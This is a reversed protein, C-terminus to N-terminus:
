RSRPSHSHINKSLFILSFYIKPTIFNHPLHSIKSSKPIFQIISFHYYFLIIQPVPFIKNIKFFEMKKFNIILSSPLVPCKCHPRAAPENRHAATAPERIWINVLSQKPVTIVYAHSMTRELCLYQM